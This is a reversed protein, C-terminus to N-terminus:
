RNDDLSRRERDVEAGIAHAGLFLGCNLVVGKSSPPVEIDVKQCTVEPGFGGGDVDVGTTFAKVVSRRDGRQKLRLFLLEDLLHGKFYSDAYVDANPCLGRDQRSTRSTLRRRRRSLPRHSSSRLYPFVFIIDDKSERGPRDTVGENVVEEM